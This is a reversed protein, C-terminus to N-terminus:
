PIVRVEAAFDAASLASIGHALAKRVLSADSTVLTAGAAKASIAQRADARHDGGPVQFLRAQDDSAPYVAEGPYTPRARPVDPILFAAIPAQEVPLRDFLAQLDARWVADPIQNLDDITLQTVLLVLKDQASAEVILDVVDPNESLYDLANSELLYRRPAAV